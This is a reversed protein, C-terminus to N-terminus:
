YVGLVQVCCLQTHIESAKCITVLYAGYSIANNRMHNFASKWSKFQKARKPDTTWSRVNGKAVYLPESDDGFFVIYKDM